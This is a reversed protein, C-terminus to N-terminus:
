GKAPIEAEGKLIAAERKGQSGSPKKSGAVSDPFIKALVNGVANGIANFM